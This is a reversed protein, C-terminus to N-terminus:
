KPLREAYRNNYLNVGAGIQQTNLWDSYAQSQKAQLQSPTFPQVGRGTQQILLGGTGVTDTILRSTQSIGLSLLVEAVNPAFNQAVEDVPMWSEASATVSMVEGADVKAYYADFDAPSKIQVAAEAAKDQNEFAIYRFQIQEGSAPVDKNFAEQLKRRL